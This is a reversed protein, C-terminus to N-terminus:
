RKVPDNRRLHEVAMCVADIVDDHDGVPFSKMESELQALERAHKVQDRQYLDHLVAFRARKSQSRQEGDLAVLRVGPPMPYLAHRIFDGGNTKEFVVTDIRDSDANIMTHIRDRLARPELRYGNARDVLYRRINGAVGVKAIGTLDSSAKSTVAPDIALVWETIHRRWSSQVDYTIDDETWFTGNPNTPVCQYNLQFSRLGEQGKLWELPWKAPWSSRQEGTHPDTILAPYHRAVIGEEIAWREGRRIDDMISGYMTTTGVWQVVARLNMPLIASRLVELRKSKQYMSYTGESREGDDIIILDPRTNEFKAGLTNSDLGAVMVAVGTSALYGGPIGRRAPTCLKPFDSRLRKNGELERRLTLLHREAISAVDALGLFFRRHGYALAWLALGLFFLTSKGAERSAIWGDRPAEGPLNYQQAWRTAAALADLHFESFSVQGTAEDTFHKRLYILLFALPDHRCKDRRLKRAGVGAVWHRVEPRNLLAIYPRTDFGPPMYLRRRRNTEM